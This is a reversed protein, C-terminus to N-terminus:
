EYENLIELDSKLRARIESSKGSMRGSLYSILVVAGLLGVGAALLYIETM